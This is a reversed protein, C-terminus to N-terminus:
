KNVKLTPHELSKIDSMTDVNLTLEELVTEGNRERKSYGDTTVRTRIGERAREM